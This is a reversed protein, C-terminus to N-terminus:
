AIFNRVQFQVAYEKGLIKAKFGKGIINEVSM